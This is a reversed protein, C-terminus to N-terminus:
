AREFKYKPLTVAFCLFFRDTELLRQKFTISDWDSGTLKKYIQKVMLLLFDDLIEMKNRLLEAAEAVGASSHKNVNGEKQIHDLATNM